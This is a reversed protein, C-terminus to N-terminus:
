GHSGSSGKRRAGSARYARRRHSAGSPVHGPKRAASSSRRNDRSALLPAVTTQYEQESLLRGEGPALETLQWPGLGMRILRLTPHNIAATMRRVQRNRGEKIKIELWSTPINARYRIPPDRQWLSTEIESPLLRVEAPLTLGDKLRLGQRMQELAQASPEGEVQVWYTKALKHRPDTLVHQLSGEDTLVLLGESDYDLRGAAYVGPEQIFDALTARGADDTFQCMVQFPKNFLYVRSM